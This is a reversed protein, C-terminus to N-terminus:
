VACYTVREDSSVGSINWELEVEFPERQIEYKKKMKKEEKKEESLKCKVNSVIKIVSRLPILWFHM